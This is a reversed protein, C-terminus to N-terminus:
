ETNNKNEPEQVSKRYRFKDHGTDYIRKINKNYNMHSNEKNDRDIFSTELEEANGTIVNTSDSRDFKSPTRFKHNKIKRTFKNVNKFSYKYFNHLSCYYSM